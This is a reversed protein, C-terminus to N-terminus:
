RWDVEDADIDSENTLEIKFDLFLEDRGLKSSIFKFALLCLNIWRIVLLEAEGLKEPDEEAADADDVHESSADFSFSAWCFWITDDALEDLEEDDDELFWFLWIRDDDTEVFEVVEEDLCTEEVDTDADFEFSVTLWSCDSRSM